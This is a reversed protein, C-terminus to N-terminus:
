SSEAASIQGSSIVVLNLFLVRHARVTLRLKECALVRVDSDDAAAVHSQRQRQAEGIHSVSDRAEVEVLGFDVLEVSALGVDLVDGGFLDALM